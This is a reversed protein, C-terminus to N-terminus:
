VTVPSDTSFESFFYWDAVFMDYFSVLHHITGYQSAAENPNSMIFKHQAAIFKGEGEGEEFHPNTSAWASKIVAAFKM